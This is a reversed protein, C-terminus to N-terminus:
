IWRIEPWNDNGKRFVFWAYAMASSTVSDFDANKACIIRKTFVLVKELERRDFLRRRKQGELFTLKMFLFVRHGEDILDLGHEAFELAYKYPPNTM